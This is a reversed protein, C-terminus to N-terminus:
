RTRTKANDGGIFGELYNATRIMNLGEGGLQLLNIEVAACFSLTMASHLKMDARLWETAWSRLGLSIDTWSCFQWGQRMRGPREVALLVRGVRKKGHLSLDYRELQQRGLGSGTKVEIDDIM